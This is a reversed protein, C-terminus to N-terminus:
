STFALAKDQAISNNLVLTFVKKKPFILTYEEFTSRLGPLICM